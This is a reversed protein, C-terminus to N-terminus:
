YVLMLNCQYSVKTPSSGTSVNDEPINIANILEVPPVIKSHKKVVESFERNLADGGLEYLTKVNELEISHPNNSEFYDLAGKLRSMTQLFHDLPVGPANPGGRVTSEVEKSVNYFAIVHDM